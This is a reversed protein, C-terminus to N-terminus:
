CVLSEGDNAQEELKAKVNAGWIENQKAYLIKGSTDMSAAPSERGM